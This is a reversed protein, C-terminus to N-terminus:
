QRSQETCAGGFFWGRKNKVVGARGLCYGGRTTGQLGGWLVDGEKNEVVGGGLLGGRTGALVPPCLWGLGKNQPVGGPNEWVVGGGGRDPRDGHNSTAEFNRLDLTELCHLAFIIAAGHVYLIIWSADNIFSIITISCSHKFCWM